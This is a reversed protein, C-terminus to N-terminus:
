IKSRVFNDLSLHDALVSTGLLKIDLVTFSTINAHLLYQTKKM